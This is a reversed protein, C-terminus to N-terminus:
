VSMYKASMVYSIILLIFLPFVYRQVFFVVLGLKNSSNVYNTSRFISTAMMFTISSYTFLFIKDSLTAYDTLPKYVSFYLAISALLSTVQITMIAEFYQLQIYISFYTVMLIVLLPIVIKIFYDVASREMVWTYNFKYFPVIVEESVYGEINRIIDRDVGVYHNKISWGDVTFDVDRLEKKPPQIFFDYRANIPQFSISFKQDDFPYLRLNPYFDFKGSVKYLHNSRLKVKSDKNAGKEDIKRIDILPKNSDRGRYANTFEIYDIDVNDSESKINLYFEAYFSKESNNINALRIMDVNLYIVPKKVYIKRGDKELVSYQEPYLIFGDYNIPKWILLVDELSTRNKTFSWYRTWGKYVRQGSMYDHLRKNVHRRMDGVDQSKADLAANIIM